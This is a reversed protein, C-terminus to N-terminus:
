DGAALGAAEFEGSADTLFVGALAGSSIWVQVAASVLPVVQGGDDGLVV